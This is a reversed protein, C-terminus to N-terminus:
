GGNLEIGYEIDFNYLFVCPMYVNLRKVINGFTGPNPYVKIFIYYEDLSEAVVDPVTSGNIKEFSSELTNDDPKANKDSSIAYELNFLQLVTDGDEIIARISEYADEDEVLNDERDYIEFPYITVDDVIKSQTNAFTLTFIDGIHKPKIDFRIYLTNDKKPKVLNDITGLPLSKIEFNGNYVNYGDIVTNFNTSGEVLSEDWEENEEGVEEVTNYTYITINPAIDSGISMNIGNGDIDRNSSIWAFTIISASMLLFSLAFVIINLLNMKKM